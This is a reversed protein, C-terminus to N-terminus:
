EERMLEGQRARAKTPRKKKPMWYGSQREVYGVARELVARVRLYGLGRNCRHCLLGRIAGTGHDHDVHLPLNKPPRLCLACTGNQLRLLMDYQGLGIGYKKLLRKERQIVGHREPANQTTGERTPRVLLGEGKSPLDQM